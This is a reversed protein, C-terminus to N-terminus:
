PLVAIVSNRLPRGPVYVRGRPGVFVAPPGVWVPAPAVVPGPVIPAYTVYPRAVVVPPYAYAPAPYAYVPGPYAYVPAPYYAGWPGVYWGGYATSGLLLVLAIAVLISKM